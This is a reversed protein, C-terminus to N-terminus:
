AYGKMIAYIVIIALSLQKLVNLAYSLEFSGHKTLLDYLTGENCYKTVIIKFDQNRYTKYWPLIHPCNFKRLIKDEQDIYKLKLKQVELNTEFKQVSDINLLKLAVIREEPNKRDIARYIKGFAGGGLDEVM